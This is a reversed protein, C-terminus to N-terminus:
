KPVGGFYKNIASNVNVEAKWMWGGGVWSM